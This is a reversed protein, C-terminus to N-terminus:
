KIPNRALLVKVPIPFIPRADEHNPHEAIFNKEKEVKNHILKDFTNKIHEASPIMMRPNEHSMNIVAKNGTVSVKKFEIMSYERQLEDILEDITAEFIRNQYEIDVGPSPKMENYIIIDISYREGPNLSEAEKNGYRPSFKPFLGRVLRNIFM